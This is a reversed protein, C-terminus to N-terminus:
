VTATAAPVFGHHELSASFLDFVKRLRVSTESERANLSRRLLAELWGAGWSLDRALSKLEREARPEVDVAVAGLLEGELEIPQAVHLRADKEGVTVAVLARKELAHEIAEALKARDRKTEPWAAAPM